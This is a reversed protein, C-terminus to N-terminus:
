AGKEPAAENYVHVDRQPFPISIGEADFRMKVERTIDWFFIIYNITKMFGFAICYGPVSPISLAARISIPSR